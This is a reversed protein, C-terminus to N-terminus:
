GHYVRSSIILGNSIELVEAVSIEEEGPVIRTYEMFVREEDATLAEERYALGPLREFADRWWDHLAKKGHIMGQTEPKRAKLKPSYHRAKDDYLALLSELDHTNFASLWKKAIYYSAPHKEM